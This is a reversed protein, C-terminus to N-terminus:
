QRACSAGACTFRGQHQDRTGRGARGRGRRQEEARRRSSTGAARTLSGKVPRRRAGRNRAHHERSAVAHRTKVDLRAARGTEQEGAHGRPESPKLIGIEDDVEGRSLEDTM